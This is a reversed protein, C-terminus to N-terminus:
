EGYSIVMHNKEGYAIVMNGYGSGLAGPGKRPREGARGDGEAARGLASTRGGPV